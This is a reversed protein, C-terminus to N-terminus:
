RATVGSRSATFDGAAVATVGSLGDPVNCQGYDLGGGCGWAVVTGGTAARGAGAPVLLGLVATAVACQRLLSM